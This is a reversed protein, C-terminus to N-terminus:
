HIVVIKKKLLPSNKNSLTCFYIGSPLASTTICREEVENDDQILVSGQSDSLIFTLKDGTRLSSICVMADGPNPYVEVRDTPPDIIGNCPDVTVVVSDSNRCRNSDRVEVWYTYFGPLGATFSYSSQYSGDQWYYQLYQNGPSLVFHAGSCLVTDPGLNVPSVQVVNVSMKRISISGSDNYASLEYLTPISPSLFPEAISTDSVGNSPSWSYSCTGNCNRLNVFPQISDGLCLSSGPMNVDLNLLPYHYIDLNKGLGGMTCQYGYEHYLNGDPYYEFHMQGGSSGIHGNYWYYVLRNATDYVESWENEAVWGLESSYYDEEASLSLPFYNQYTFLSRQASDWTNQNWTLELQIQLSDAPDYFLKQNYSYVWGAGDWQQQITEVLRNTPSYTNSILQYNIWSTDNGNEKLQHVLLDQGNYQNTTRVYNKWAGATWLTSTSQLELGVNSFSKQIRSGPLWFISDGSSYVQLTDNGSGDFYNEYKASNKWYSYPIDYTELSVVTVLGNSDYTYSYRNGSVLQGNFSCTLSTRETVDGHGNYLYDDQNQLIWAATLTDWRFHISRLTQGAANFVASDLRYNRWSSDQASWNETLTCLNRGMSDLFYYYMLGNVWATTDGYQYIVSIVRNLSDRKYIHKTDNRVLNGSFYHVYQSFYTSDSDTVVIFDQVYDSYGSCDGENIRGTRVLSSDYRYPLVQGQLSYPFLLVLFLLVLFLLKNM